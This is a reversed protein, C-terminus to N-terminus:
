ELEFDFSTVESESFNHTSLIQVFAGEEILIKVFSLVDIEETRITINKGRLEIAPQFTLEALEDPTLNLINKGQM